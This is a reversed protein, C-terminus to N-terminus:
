GAEHLGGLYLTTEIDTKGIRAFGYQEKQSLREFIRNGQEYKKLKLYFYLMWLPTTLTKLSKKM